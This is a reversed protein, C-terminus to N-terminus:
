SGPIVGDGTNYTTLAATGDSGTFGSAVHGDKPDEPHFTVTAGELPKDDLTVVATTKVPTKVGGCGILFSLLLFGLWHMRRTMLITGLHLAFAPRRPVSDRRGAM